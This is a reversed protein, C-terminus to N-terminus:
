YTPSSLPSRAPSLSGVDENRSVSNRAPRRGQVEPGHVEPATTANQEDEEAELGKGPREWSRDQPGTRESLAGPEWWSLGYISLFTWGLLHQRKNSILGWACHFLEQTTDKKRSYLSKGKQKPREPPFLCEHPLMKKKQWFSSSHRRHALHCTVFERAGQEKGYVCM